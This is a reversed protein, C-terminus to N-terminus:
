LYFYEFMSCALLHFDSCSPISQESQEPGRELMWAASFALLALHPGNSDQVLSWTASASPDEGNVPLDRVLRHALDLGVEVLM